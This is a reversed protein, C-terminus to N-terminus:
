GRVTLVPCHAHCVVDYATAWPLHASTRPLATARVGMVILDLVFAIARSIFGAHQFQLAEKNM